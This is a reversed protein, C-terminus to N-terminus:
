TVQRLLCAARGPLAPRATMWYRLEDPGMPRAVAYGQVIDCGVKRLFDLQEALEVGEAVVELGLAHALEVMARVIQAGRARPDLEAMFTRDLKLRDIPLERLRALSSQGVGFDDISIQVGLGRLRVLAPPIGDFDTIATETIELELCTPPLAHDYLAQIVVDELGPQRFSQASVNVAIRGFPTGAKLWGAARACATHLIHETLVHILPGDEAVPIFTSPPVPGRGAHRWRALVECGAVEGSGLHVTPQFALEIDGAEIALRLDDELSKREHEQRVLGEDHFRFTGGGAAKAAYLALEARQLLDGATLPAGDHVITGISATPLLDHGGVHLPRSLRQLLLAAVKRVTSGAVPPPLLVGFEDVALRATVATEDLEQLLRGVAVLLADGTSEGFAENVLRM